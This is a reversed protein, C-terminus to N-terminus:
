KGRQGIPPSGSAYKRARMVVYASTSQHPDLRSNAISLAVATAPAILNDALYIVKTGDNAIRLIRGVLDVGHYEAILQVTLDGAHVPILTAREMHYGSVIKQSAMAQILRVATEDTDPAEESDPAVPKILAAPNSVFIQQAETAALQCAFKYVYGKKSTGFFSLTKPRFSDPVSLYIDGRNPENVVSFDDLANVPQVKSVSAFEDGILSIRTLDKASAICDIRANDTTNLTQDARAPEALILFAAGLLGAGLCRVGWNDPRSAFLTGTGLCTAALHEIM